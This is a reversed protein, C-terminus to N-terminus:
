SPLWQKHSTAAFIGRGRAKLLAMAMPDSDFHKVLDNATVSSVSRPGWFPRAAMPTADLHGNTVKGRPLDV